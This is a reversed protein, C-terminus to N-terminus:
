LDVMLHEGCEDCLLHIYGDQYCRFLETTKEHQCTAKLLWKALKNLLRKM